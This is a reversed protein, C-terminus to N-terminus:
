NFSQEETVEPCELMAVFSDKRSIYSKEHLEGARAKFIAEIILRECQEHQYTDTISRMKSAVYEGFTSENDNITTSRLQKDALILLEDLPKRKRTRNRGTPPSSTRAESNMSLEAVELNENEEDEDQISVIQFYLLESIICQLPYILHMQVVTRVSKCLYINTRM